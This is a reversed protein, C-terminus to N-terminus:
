VLVEVREADGILLMGSEAAQLEELMSNEIIRDTARRFEGPDLTLAEPRAHIRAVGSDPFNVRWSVGNRRPAWSSERLLEHPSLQITLWDQWRQIGDTPAQEPVM